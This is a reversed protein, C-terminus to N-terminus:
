FHKIARIAQKLSHNDMKDLLKHANQLLENREKQWAKMFAYAEEGEFIACEHIGISVYGSRQVARCLEKKPSTDNPDRSLYASTNNALIVHYAQLINREFHEVYVTEGERLTRKLM